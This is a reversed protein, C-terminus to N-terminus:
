YPVRLGTVRTRHHRSQDDRHVHSHKEVLNREIRKRPVMELLRVRQDGRAEMEQGDQSRHKQVAPPHVDDAVHPKKPNEAVFHFVKEAVGLVHYEIHDAPYSSGHRLHKEAGARPDRDHTRAASDGSHHSRVQDLERMRANDSEYEDEEKHRGDFYRRDQHQKVPEENLKHASDARHPVRLQRPLSSYCEERVHATEDRSHDQYGHHARPLFVGPTLIEVPLPPFVSPLATYAPPSSGKRPHSARAPLRARAPWSRGPRFQCRCCHPTAGPM